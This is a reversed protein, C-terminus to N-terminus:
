CPGGASCNRRSAEQAVVVFAAVTEEPPCEGTWYGFKAGAFSRLEELWRDWIVQNGSAISLGLILGGDSLFFVHASHPDGATRNNWYGCGEAVSQLESFAAFEEPSDFVKNPKDGGLRVLYDADARVRHPLFRMLFRDVMAASRESALVYIDM